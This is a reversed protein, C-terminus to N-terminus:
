GFLVSASPFTMLLSILRNSRLFIRALNHFSPHIFYLFNLKFDLSLLLYACYPFLLRCASLCLTAFLTPHLLLRCPLNYKSARFFRLSLFLLLRNYPCILPYLGEGWFLISLGLPNTLRFYVWFLCFFTFCLFILEKM